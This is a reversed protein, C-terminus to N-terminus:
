WDPPRSGIALILRNDDFGVEWVGTYKIGATRFMYALETAHPPMDKDRRPQDLALVFNIGLLDARLTMDQTGSAEWGHDHFEDILDGALTLGQANAVVVTVFVPFREDAPVQDLEKGLKIKQDESLHWFREETRVAAEKAIYFQVGGWVAVTVIATASVAFVVWGFYPWGRHRLARKPEGVFILHAVGYAILGVAFFPSALVAALMGLEGGLSRVVSLAFDIDEGVHFIRLGGLGAAGWGPWKWWGFLRRRLRKLPLTWPDPPPDPSDVDPM